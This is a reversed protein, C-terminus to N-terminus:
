FNKVRALEERVVDTDSWSIREGHAVRIFTESGKGTIIVTDGERAMSIAHRIADRRDPIIKMKHAASERAGIAVAEMIKIADEDFPDEDTIAIDRCFSAAIKGFEPRKWADRGGGTAGLVCILRSEMDADKKGGLSEYVRELSDPTHAYDVVVRFPTQQIIQMRGPIEKVEAIGHSIADIPIRLALAAAIAAIINEANVDGQLQSRIQHGKVDLMIGYNGANYNRIPWIHKKNEILERGYWMKDCKCAAAVRSAQRDDRNIVAIGTKPIRWFFDLKSRVYPEFGGHAEIHEASINTLVGIDFDIFRHRYQEIGQSTVEIVAYNCGRTLARSFFQQLFFRGPMTMGLTNKEEDANIKFRISSASAVRAGHAALIHHLLEVVTTKGKTGTVGIVTMKRSPFWYWLAGALALSFHYPKEMRTILHTPIKSKFSRAQAVVSKTQASIRSKISQAHSALSKM